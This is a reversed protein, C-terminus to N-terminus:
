GSTPMGGSLAEALFDFVLRIRRATHLDRHTVLWVPVPIPEFDPLVLEIGPTRAVVETLMAGVGLGLRVMEREVIGSDTIWRFNDMSLPLGRGQLEQLFAENRGSFGIFAHNRLDAPSQPRGHRDLYDTAAYLNAETDPLRRAILEDQVPQVHRIAIDAERRLLDDIENSALVEVVIGPATESLRRLLPPLVYAANMDSATIRVLGEVAQSQGSAVLSMRGVADGMARVHEVLARGGDTLVLSKGVREFLAVGLDAELGAIQRSLTPQTLGLARAAASLSGTEVTALFARIQNWDVNPLQWSM